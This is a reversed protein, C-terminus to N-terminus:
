TPPEARPFPGSHPDGEIFAGDRVLAVIRLTAADAAGVTTPDASWFALAATSGPELPAADLLGADALAEVVSAAHGDRVASRVIVEAAGPDRPAATVAAAGLDIFTSDGRSIAAVTADPGVALVHDAAWAIATPPPRRGSQLVVGGLAIVYEHTV